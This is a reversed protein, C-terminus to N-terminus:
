KNVYPEILSNLQLDCFSNITKVPDITEPTICWSFIIGYVETTLLISLENVPTNPKLRESKILGKILKQLLENDYQWKETNSSAAVFRVWQRALNVKSNVIIQLFDVLYRRISISPDDVSLSKIKNSLGNMHRKNLEFIIEEKKNFYNYFTGKAVGSAKTIDSVSMKEYGKQQLLNEASEILIERTKATDLERKTM